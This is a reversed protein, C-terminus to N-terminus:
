DKQGKEQSLKIGKKLEAEFVSKEKDPDFDNLTGGKEFHNQFVKGVAYTSASGIVAMGTSGFLINIGPILKVVMPIAARTAYGGSLTTLLDKALSRSFEVNYVQALHLLMKRQVTMIGLADVVPLPIYGFFGSSFAYRKILKDAKQSLHKKNLPKNQENSSTM